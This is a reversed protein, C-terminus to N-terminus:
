GCRFKDGSPLGRHEGCLWSTRSTWSARVGGLNAVKGGVAGTDSASINEFWLIM